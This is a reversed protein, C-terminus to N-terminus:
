LGVRFGSSPYGLATALIQRMFCFSFRNDSKEEKEQRRNYGGMWKKKISTWGLFVDMEMGRGDGM